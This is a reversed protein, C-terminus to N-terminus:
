AQLANILSYHGHTPNTPMMSRSASMWASATKKTILSIWPSSPTPNTQGRSRAPPGPSPHALGIKSLLSLTLQLRTHKKFTFSLIKIAKNFVSPNSTAGINFIDQELGAISSKYHTAALTPSRTNRFRRARNNNPAAPGAAGASCPSDDVGPMTPFFLYPFVRFVSDGFLFGSKNIM